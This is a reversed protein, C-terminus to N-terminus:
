RPPILSPGERNAPLIEFLVHKSVVDTENLVRHSVDGSEFFFDGTRYTVTRDPLIYEMEGATVERIGPGVHNHDGVFGDPGITIETVRLKYGGALEPLHGGDIPAEYLITASVNRTEVAADQATTRSPETGEETDPEPIRRMAEATVGSFHIHMHAVPTGAAMVWQEPQERPRYASPLRAREPDLPLPWIMVHPTMNLVTDAAAGVEAEGVTLRGGEDRGYAVQGGAINMGGLMWVLGPANPLPNKPNMPDPENWVAEFFAWANQDACLPDRHPLAPKGLRLSYSGSAVCTYPGDGERVLVRSGDDRWAFVRADHTVVAPAARLADEIQSARWGADLTKM